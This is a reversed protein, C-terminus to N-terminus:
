ELLHQHTKDCLDRFIAMCEGRGVRLFGRLERVCLGAGALFGLLDFGGETLEEALLAEIEPEVAFGAESEVAIVESDLGGVGKGNVPNAAPETVVQKGRGAFHESGGGFDRHLEGLIEKRRRVIARSGCVSGCNREPKCGGFVGGGGRGGPGTFNGEVGAVRELFEDGAGGILEGKAGGMLDGFVGGALEIREEEVALAAQAFGVQKLTDAVFEGLKMGSFFPEVEGGLLEGIFEEFSELLAAGAIEAAAHAKGIEQHDVIDMEEGAFAM